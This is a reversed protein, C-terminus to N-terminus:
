SAKAPLKKRCYACGLFQFCLYSSFFSQGQLQNVSKCTIQGTYKYITNHVAPYQNVNVFEKVSPFRRCKSCSFFLQFSVTSLDNSPVQSNTLRSRCMRYLISPTSVEHILSVANNLVGLYLNIYFREFNM